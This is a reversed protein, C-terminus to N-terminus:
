TREGSPLPDVWGINKFHQYFLERAIAFVGNRGLKVPERGEPEWSGSRYGPRTTEDIAYGYPNRLVVHEVIDGSQIVGLVTYAHNPLLGISEWVASNSATSMETWTM